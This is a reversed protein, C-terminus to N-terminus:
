PLSELEAIYADFEEKENKRAIQEELHKIKEDLDPNMGGDVELKAMINEIDDEKM